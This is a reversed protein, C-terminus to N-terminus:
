SSTQPNQEYDMLLKIQKSEENSIRKKIVQYNSNQTVLKRLKNEDMDLIPSLTKVIYEVNNNKKIDNPNCILTDVSTSQALVKGNRDYIDGRSATIINSGTQQARARQSMEEGRIIQWYVLRLVLAAMCVIVIIVLPLIRKKISNLSPTM